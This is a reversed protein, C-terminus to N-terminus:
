SALWTWGYSEAIKQDKVKKWGNKLQDQHSNGSVMGVPRSVTLGGSKFRMAVSAPSKFDKGAIALSVVVVDGSRTKMKRKDAGGSARDQALKAEFAVM